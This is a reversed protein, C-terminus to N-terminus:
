AALTATRVHNTGTCLRAIANYQRNDLQLFCLKEGFNLM